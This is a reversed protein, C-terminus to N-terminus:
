YFEIKTNKSVYLAYAQKRNRRGDQVAIIKSSRDAYTRGLIKLVNTLKQSIYM